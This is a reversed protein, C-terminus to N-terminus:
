SYSSFEAKIGHQGCYARLSSFASEGHFRNQLVDLPDEGAKDTCLLGFLKKTGEPSITLWYEYDSDGWFEETAEGLDQGSIVLGGDDLLRATVYISVRPRKLECLSVEQKAMM